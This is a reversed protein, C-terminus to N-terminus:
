DGKAETSKDGRGRVGEMNQIHVHDGIHIDVTALGIVEGYKRIPQGAYVVRIAIKHGFPITSNVMLQHLEKGIRYIIMQGSQLQHLATAVDDKLHVAIADIDKSVGQYLM